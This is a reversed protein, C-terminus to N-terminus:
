EMVEMSEIISLLFLVTTHRNNQSPTGVNDVRLRHKLTGGKAYEVSGSPCRGSKSQTLVTLGHM